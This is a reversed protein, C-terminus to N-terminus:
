PCNSPHHEIAICPRGSPSRSVYRICGPCNQCLVNLLFGTMENRNLHLFTYFESNNGNAGHSNQTDHTFLLITVGPLTPINQFIGVYRTALLSILTEVLDIM